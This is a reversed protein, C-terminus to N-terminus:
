REQVTFIHRASELEESLEKKEAELRQCTQEFVLLDSLAQELDDTSAALM